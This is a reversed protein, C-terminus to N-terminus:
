HGELAVPQAESLNFRIAQHVPLYEGACLRPLNDEWGVMQRIKRLLSRGSIEFASSHQRPRDLTELVGENLLISDEQLNLTMIPIKM